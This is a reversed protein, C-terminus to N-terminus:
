AQEEGLLKKLTEKENLEPQELVKRFLLALKQGLEPGPKVGLAILDRGTLALQKLSICDGRSLIEAALDEARRIREAATNEPNGGAAAAGIEANLGYGAKKLLLLDAFREPGIESLLIRVDAATEPLAKKVERVLLAARDMTDRDSKLEKLLDRVTEPASEAFVGAWRVSREEPLAAARRDARCEAFQEPLWELIGAPGLESLREPRHVVCFRGGWRTLRAAARCLDDLTCFREERAARRSGEPASYGSGVAFYPPNAAVLDFSGAEPLDADLRLDGCRIECRESVGNLIANERATEAADPQIEVGFGRASPFAQALLVLIVGAGCGLDAFRRVQGRAAFDALLVADTGLQFGAGRVFRTGTWLEDVTQEM